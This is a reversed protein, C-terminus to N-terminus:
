HAPELHRKSWVISGETADMVVAYHTEENTIPYREIWRIVRHQPVSKSGRFDKASKKWLRTACGKRYKSDEVLGQMGTMQLAAHAHSQSETWAQPALEEAEDHNTIVVFDTSSRVVATHHDKEIAITRAGDSFILYAATTAVAPIEREISALMPPNPRPASSRELPPILYNRLLSSISARAGLLVLIHHFYFRFNALRTSADHSPRFNLSTSLGKRVGTLVGVFGVYTISTAIIPGGPKEVFDLQVVVKRLSDMGWDLTRFHLMKTERSVSKTRVGGSTCGMFLDLLVNFAVLLYMKIGTIEQIGLLEANQEKNHVRRLLVRAIRHITPTSIKSPLNEVVNDFLGPLTALEPQFDAAVRQYRKAPPLSLDIVYKPIDGRETTANSRARIETDNTEVEPKQEHGKRVSASTM